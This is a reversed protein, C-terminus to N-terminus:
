RRKSLLQQVFSRAARPSIEERQSCRSLLWAGRILMSAAIVPAPFQSAFPATMASLQRVCRRVDREFERQVVARQTRAGSSKKKTSGMLSLIGM